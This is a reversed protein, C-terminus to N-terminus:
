RNDFIKNIKGILVHKNLPKVIYDNCGAEMIRNKGEITANTLQIIIPLHRNKSKIHKILMYDSFKATNHDIIILDLNPTKVVADIAQDSSQVTLIKIKTTKLLTEIGSAAEVDSDVILISRNDWMPSKQSISSLEEDHSTPAPVYPITFYFTAGKNLESEVWIEGGMLEILAKSITLGLGTGGYKRTHVDDVQRFRDFIITQNEPSIGIGCDKVFFKLMNNRSFYCGFEITGETSFKVANGVLNNLIQQLRTNDILILSNEDPIMYRASITIKDAQAATYGRFFILLDNFFHKLNIQRNIIDIEGAEIKSVNVIDDIIQLLQNSSKIIIDLYSERQEENLDDDRLLESFGLIGNMPTRIEHSMNALFSSKLTDAEEAKEKALRLEKEYKKRETIDVIIGRLGVIQNGKIVSNVKILADFEKGFQTLITIEKQIEYTKRSTLEHYFRLLQIKDKKPFLNFVHFNNDIIELDYGLKEFVIRNVYKIIGQNNIECIMEPLSDLLERYHAESLKLTEEAKVQNSIDEFIGFAGLFHDNESYLSSIYVNLYTSTKKNLISIHEYNYTKRELASYLSKLLKQDDIVDDIKKNSVMDISIDFMTAWAPNISVITGEQDYHIMGLPLTNLIYKFRERTELEKEQIKKREIIERQLSATRDQIRQDLLRNHQIKLRYRSLVFIILLIVIITILALINFNSQSESVKLRQLTTQQTLYEIEKENKEQEYQIQLEALKQNANQKNISDAFISARKHNIYAEKYNGTSEYFRALNTHILQQM